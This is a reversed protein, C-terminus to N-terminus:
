FAALFSVTSSAYHTFHPTLFFFYAPGQNHLVKYTIGLLESMVQLMLTTDDAYRLNNINRGAIKIGAQAEELGANRM